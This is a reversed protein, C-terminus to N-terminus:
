GQLGLIFSGGIILRIIREVEKASHEGREYPKKSMQRASSMRIVM